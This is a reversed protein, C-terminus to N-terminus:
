TNDSAYEKKFKWDIIMLVELIGVILWYSVTQESFLPFYIKYQGLESWKEGNSTTEIQEYSFHLILFVINVVLDILFIWFAFQFKGKLFEYGVKMKKNVATLVRLAFVRLGFRISECTLYM